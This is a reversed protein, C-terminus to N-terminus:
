REGGRLGVPRVAGAAGVAGVAGVAVVLLVAGLLLCRRPGAAEPVDPVGAEHVGHELDALFVVPLNIVRREKLAQAVGLLQGVIHHVVLM